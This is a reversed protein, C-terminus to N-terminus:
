LLFFHHLFGSLSLYVLIFIFLTERDEVGPQNTHSLSNNELRTGTKLNKRGQFGEVVGPTIGVLYM